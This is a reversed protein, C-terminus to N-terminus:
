VLPTGCQNCFNTDNANVQECNSCVRVLKEGCDNCFKANDPNQQKCNPCVLSRKSASESHLAKSIEKVGFTTEKALYNFTDKAVPAYERSQYKAISGGYGLNSLIFGIFLIPIAVFFLWFFKPEEFGQLTFFDIFAVLMCAVGIILLLPGLLRFLSRTKKHQETIFKEHVM